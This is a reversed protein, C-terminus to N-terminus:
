ETKERLKINLKDYVQQPVNFAFKNLLSLTSIQLQSGSLDPDIFKSIQFDDALYNWDFTAHVGKDPIDYFNMSLVTGNNFTYRAKINPSRPLDTRLMYDNHQIDTLSSLVESIKDEDVEEFGQPLNQHILIGEENKVLNIMNKGYIQVSEIKESGINILDNPIWYFNSVDAGLNSSVVYSQSSNNMKVYTGPILYNFTGIDLTLLEEGTESKLYLTTKSEPDLALKYLLEDKNTKLELISAEKLQIFFKSLIDTNAPLGDATSMIWQNNLKEIIAKENQNSFEIYTVAGLIEDFNEILPITNFNLNKSKETSYLILALALMFVTISLLYKLNKLIM